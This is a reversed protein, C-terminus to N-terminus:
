NERARIVLLPFPARHMLGAAVSGLLVSGVSGRGRSAIAILTVDELEALRIIADVVGGHMVFSSVTLGKGRLEGARGQLYQRAEEERVRLTSLESELTDKPDALIPLPSVVRTLVLESNFKQALEEVHPLSAEARPSGDLPILIKEYM